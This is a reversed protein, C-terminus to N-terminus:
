FRVLHNGLSPSFLRAHWRWSAYIAALEMALLAAQLSVSADQVFLVGTFVILTASAAVTLAGVRAVASWDRELLVWALRLHGLGLFIWLILMPLVAASYAEGLYLQQASGPALLAHGWGRALSLYPLGACAFQFVAMPILVGLALVHNALVFRGESQLPMERWAAILCGAAFALPKGDQVAAGFEAEMARAWERRSEGLCCTALTMLARAVGASM